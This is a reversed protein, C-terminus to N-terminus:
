DTALRRYLRRETLVADLPVDWPGPELQPLRQFEYGVGILRPRRWHRGERLHHLCRDYFGAGSGLRWGRLDFAVLPLLILDLKRVAIRADAGLQPEEIGYRNRRLPTRPDFPVFAMRYRRQHTIVPLYLQCGRRRAVAIVEGLDAEAGHSLYVAIRRGPSLLGTRNLLKAFHRAAAAREALPLARRQARIQRRLRERESLLSAGGAQATM